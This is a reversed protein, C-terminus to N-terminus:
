NGVTGNMGKPGIATVLIHGDRHHQGVIEVEQDLLHLPVPAIDLWTDGGKPERLAFCRNRDIFYGVRRCSMGGSATALPTFVPRARMM